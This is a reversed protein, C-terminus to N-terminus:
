LTGAAKREFYETISMGKRVRNTVVKKTSSMMLSPIAEEDISMENIQESLKKKPSGDSIGQNANPKNSEDLNMAETENTKNEVANDNNNSAQNDEEKKEQGGTDWLVKPKVKRSRYHNVAEKQGSKKLELEAKYAELDAKKNLERARQNVIAWKKNMENSKLQRTRSSEANLIKKQEDKKAKLDSELSDINAKLAKLELEISENEADNTSTALKMKLEDEEKKADDLASQAAQVMFNIKTKEAAVNGIKKKLTKTMQISKQIDETTYTYNTILNDQKKRLSTAEKKGLVEEGGGRINKLHHLYQNVDDQDPRSDSIM